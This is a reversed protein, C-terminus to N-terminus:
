FCLDDCVWVNRSEMLAVGIQNRVRNMYGGDQVRGLNYSGIEENINNRRWAWDYIWLYIVNILSKMKLDVCEFLTTPHLIYRYYTYPTYIYLSYNTKEKGIIIYLM